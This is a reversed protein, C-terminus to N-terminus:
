CLLEGNRWSGAVAAFRGRLPSTTELLRCGQFLNPSPLREEVSEGSSEAKARLFVGQDVIIGRLWYQLLLVREMGSRNELGRAKRAGRAATDSVAIAEAGWGTHVLLQHGAQQVTGPRFRSTPCLRWRSPLLAM